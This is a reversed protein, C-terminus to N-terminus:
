RKIQLKILLTVSKYCICFIFLILTINIRTLPPLHNHFRVFKKIPTPKQKSKKTKSHEFCFLQKSRVSSSLLLFMKTVCNMCWQTYPSHACFLLNHMTSILVKWCLDQRRQRSRQHKGPKMNFVNGELVWPKNSSLAPNNM